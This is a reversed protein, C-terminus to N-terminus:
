TVVSKLFKKIKLLLEDLDDAKDVFAVNSHLNEDEVASRFNVGIADAMGSYIIIPLEASKSNRRLEDLMYYGQLDTEMMIDLIILDPSKESLLSIGETKSKATFVIYHEKELITKLSLLLDPDDDIILLKNNEM